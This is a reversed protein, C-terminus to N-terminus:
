FFSPLFVDVCMRSYEYKDMRCSTVPVCKKILISRPMRSRPSTMKVSYEYELEYNQDANNDWFEEEGVKYLLAFSLKSSIVKMDNQYRVKYNFFKQILDIKFHFRDVDPNISSEFVAALDQYSNWNDASYRARVSKHYGRNKVLVTGILYFNKLSFSELTIKREELRQLVVSESPNQEFNLVNLSQIQKDISSSPAMLNCYIVKAKNDFKVKKNDNM